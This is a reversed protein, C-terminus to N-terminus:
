RDGRLRDIVEVDTAEMAVSGPLALLTLDELRTNCRVTVSVVGGPRFNSTDTSVYTDACTLNGAELTKTAADQAARAASSPSQRLSAARAAEAAADRIEGRVHGLRWTAAILM